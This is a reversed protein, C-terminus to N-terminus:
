YVSRGLECKYGSPQNRQLLLKWNYYESGVNNRLLIRSTICNHLNNLCFYFWDWRKSLKNGWFESSFWLPSIVYDLLIQKLSVYLPLSICLYIRILTIRRWVGAFNPRLIHILSYILCCKPSIYTNLVFLTPPHFVKLYYVLKSPPIYLFFFVLNSTNFVTHFSM